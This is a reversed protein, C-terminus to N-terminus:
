APHRIAAEAKSSIGLCAIAVFTSLGIIRKM